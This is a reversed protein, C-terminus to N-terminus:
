IPVPRAAVNGAQEVPGVGLRRHGRQHRYGVPRAHPDQQRFDWDSLPSIKGCRAREIQAPGAGKSSLKAGPCADGDGPM